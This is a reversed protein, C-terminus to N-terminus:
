CPRDRWREILAQMDRELQAVRAALASVTAELQHQEALLAHLRAMQTDHDTHDM